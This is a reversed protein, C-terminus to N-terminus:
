PRVKVTDRISLWENLEDLLDDSNRFYEPLSDQAIIKNQPRNKGLHDALSSYEYSELNSRKSSEDLLASPNLYVYSVLYKLYADDDAHKSGYKGQFLAGTREYKKNFYMTYGTVLRQMFRSTGGDEKERIILHFHNPMLTYACLDILPAGRDIELFRTLTAGRYDSIHVTRKGNCLYLLALFRQYDHKNLFVKRKETGRNYIHYYEDPAIPDRQGM